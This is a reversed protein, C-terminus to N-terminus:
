KKVMASLILIRKKLCKDVLIKMFKDVKFTYIVKILFKFEGFSYFIIRKHMKRVRDHFIM